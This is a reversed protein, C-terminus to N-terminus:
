MAVAALRTNRSRPMQPKGLVIEAFGYSCSYIRIKRQGLVNLAVDLVRLICAGNASGIVSISRPRRWRRRQRQDSLCLLKALCTVSSVSPFSVTKASGSPSTKACSCRLQLNTTLSSSDEARVRATSKRTRWTNRSWSKREIAIKVYLQMQLLSATQAIISVHYRKTASVVHINPKTQKRRGGAQRSSQRVSGAYYKSM